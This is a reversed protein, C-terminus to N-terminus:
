LSPARAEDIAADTGAGPGAMWLCTPKPCMALPGEIRPRGGPMLGRPVNWTARIGCIITKNQVVNYQTVSLNTVAEGYQLKTNNITQDTYNENYIDANYEFATIQRRLEASRTISIVRFLKCVNDTTGFNVLDGENVAISLAGDLHITDTTGAVCTVNVTNLVEKVAAEDIQRIMIAYTKGATMQIKETFTITNADTDVSKVRLGALGWKPVRHQIAIVQGVKCAIADVDVDITVTRSKSNSLNLAYTGERIASLRDTCGYYTKTGPNISTTDNDYDDTYLTITQSAYDIDKDYFTVELANAKGQLDLFDETFSSEKINTVNFMQVPEAAEDWM